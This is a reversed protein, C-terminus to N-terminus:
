QPWRGMGTVIAAGVAGDPSRGTLLSLGGPESQATLALGLAMAGTAAGCDGLLRPVAVWRPKHGLAETAPGYEPRGTEGAEAAGVNEAAGV